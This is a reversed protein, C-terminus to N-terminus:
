HGAPSFAQPSGEAPEPWQVVMRCLPSGDDARAPESELVRAGRARASAVVEAQTIGPCHVDAGLHAPATHVELLLRGGRRLAMDAVRWFDERARGRLDCLLQQAYLTVPEGHALRSGLALVARLDYLNLCEFEAPVDRETAAAAAKRVAGQVFDVGLTQRGSGAFWLADTGTGCGLDVLLSGAADREAAWRAFPTPEARPASSALLSAWADREKRLGGLWGTVRRQRAPSAGFKFSPDPVRWGPGYAAELLLEPQAPAPFRRGELELTGLPLIASRPLRARVDHVLYLWDETRWCAFVDLNRTTGDAQPLFLALFAGNERRVRWEHRRLAREVRFSERILDAPHEHESYYALDADVDHGILEGTRAAGLLTGWAIFAELGCEDRLVDLVEEVQDLYHERTDHGLTDFPRNLRGYKTVALQRGESDVVRVRGEGSGFSVLADHYVEGTQHSRVQVECAGELFQRLVPPWPVHYRGSDDLHKPSATFGWVREGDFLVDCVVGEAGLLVLGEDGVSVVAVPSDDAARAPTM